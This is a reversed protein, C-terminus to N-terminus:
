VICYTADVTFNSMEHVSYLFLVIRGFRSNKSFYMICDYKIKYLTYHIYM